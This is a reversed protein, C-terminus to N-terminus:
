MKPKLTFRPKIAIKPHDGELELGTVKELDDVAEYTRGLPVKITGFGGAKAAKLNEGIDDLFLIESAEVGNEWGLGDNRQNQANARAFKDLETLALKYIRPDPKRLGVHASSVFVDFLDMLPSRWTNNRHLKHGEPFIVTNSLAGLIYRGSQRLKQLAPYMWPDMNSSSTMMENFLWEGDVKPVPPPVELLKPNKAHERRYFADWNAPVHLDRNFEDYFGKDM